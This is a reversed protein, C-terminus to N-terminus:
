FRIKHYDLEKTKPFSGINILKEDPEPSIKITSHDLKENKSIKLFNNIYNSFEEVKALTM